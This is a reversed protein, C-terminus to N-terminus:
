EDKLGVVCDSLVSGVDDLGRETDTSDEVREELVRVPSSLFVDRSSDQGERGENRRDLNEDDRQTVM